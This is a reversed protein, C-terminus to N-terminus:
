SEQLWKNYAELIEQKVKEIPINTTDIVLDYHSMDDKRVHYLKEYRETESRARKLMDQKYEEVTAFNETNKRRLDEFARKAGVDPDVKLYVKFSDPVSYWGMRADIIFCDHDKAYEFARDEIKQDIEPHAEVYIGFSTVDMGMELALSRFYEGNCYVTYGLEEKLLDTVRSKGAALDGTLSIIHKKM